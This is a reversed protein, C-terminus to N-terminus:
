ATKLDQNFNDVIGAPSSLQNIKDTLKTCVHLKDVWVEQKAQCGDTDRYNDM